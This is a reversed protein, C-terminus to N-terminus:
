VFTFKRQLKVTGNGSGGEAALLQGITTAQSLSFTIGHATGRGMGECYVWTGNLYHVSFDGTAMITTGQVIEYNYVLSTWVTGDFTEGTLNAASQNNTIAHLKQYQFPSIGLNVLATAVNSLDSLNNVVALAGAVNLQAAIAATLSRVNDVTWLTVDSANHLSFKYSAQPLWVECEGNADLVIPNTNPTVGSADTYTALPTTSGAVYSYLLGGVLPVGNADFFRQRFDPALDYM